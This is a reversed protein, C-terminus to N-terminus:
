CVADAGAMALDEEIGACEDRLATVRRHRERFTERASRLGADVRLQAATIEVHAEGPTLRRALALEAARSAAEALTADHQCRALEYRLHAVWNGERM